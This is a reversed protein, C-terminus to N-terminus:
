KRLVEVRKGMPPVEEPDIKIDLLVPGAHSIVAQWDLKNWDNLTNINFAKVGMAHAMAAFDVAPLEFGIPEGGGMRQGHKVMGLAQDNLIVFIVNKNEAQAVTIEQASMLYSGDGTICVVPAQESDLRNGIGLRVGISAGVAWAMAGFGMAIHYHGKQKPHLYHTAWCWANGADIIFRTNSSLREVIDVMLQQPKVSKELDGKASRIQPIWPLLDAPDRKYDLAAIHKTAAKKTAYLTDILEVFLEEYDAHVHMSAMYSQHFNDATCDIHVLKENLLASEDWGNTSLEDMDVGVALILGVDDSVMANRASAHGAFGFVGRYNPHYTDAWTKGTPTAVIDANAQECFEHVKQSAHESVKGIVVVIRLSDGVLTQTIRTCLDDVKFTDLMKPQRLYMGLNHSYDRQSLPQSMIDMPISLHAPGQPPRYAAAVASFLKQELQEAHSVFSNYCTCHEFMSVTDVADVSSEQLSQRGFNPLATQPTIVLMPICDVYASAVGTILNTAGPGTTATCVGLRGTERAYGDAMFAAGAEHRAVIARPGKGMRSGNRAGDAKIPLKALNLTREDGNTRRALADYLPEIAGGPVGFVYEVNIQALYAIILDGYTLPKATETQHETEIAPETGSVSSAESEPEISSFEPSANVSTDNLAVPTAIPSVQGEQFPDVQKPATM